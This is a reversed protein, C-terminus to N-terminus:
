PGMLAVVGETPPVATGPRAGLRSKVAGPLGRVM